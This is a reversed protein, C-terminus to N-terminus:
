RSRLPITRDDRATSLGRYKASTQMALLEKRTVEM